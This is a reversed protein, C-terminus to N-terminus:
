KYSYFVVNRRKLEKNDLGGGADIDFSEFKEKMEKLEEETYLAAPDEVIDESKM